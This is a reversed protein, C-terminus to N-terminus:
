SASALRHMLMLVTQQDAPGLRQWADLLETSRSRPEELTSLRANLADLQSRLMGAFAPEGEGVLRPGSRWEAPPEPAYFLDLAAGPEWGLVKDVKVGVVATLRSRTGQELERWTSRAVRAGDIGTGNVADVVSLGLEGRRDRMAKALSERSVFFLRCTVYRLMM